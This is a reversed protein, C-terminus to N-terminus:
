TPRGAPLGFWSKQSTKRMVFPALAASNTTSPEPVAGPLQFTANSEWKTERQDITLVRPLLQVEHDAFRIVVTGPKFTPDLFICQGFPLPFPVHRPRSFSVTEERFDPPLKANPFRVQVNSIGLSPQQIIILPCEADAAFRVRWPGRGDRQMEIGFYAVAYFALVVAFLLFVNRVVSNSKM